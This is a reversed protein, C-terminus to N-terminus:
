ADSDEACPLDFHEVLRWPAGGDQQIRSVTGLNVTIGAQLVSAAALSNGASKPNRPHALTIHPLQRRLATSGLILSRLALFEEEGRICPLLIGHTSFSEPPGFSLSVPGTKWASLRERLDASQLDEIEDERCLTVHPAILSFQVPDLSKRAEDIKAAATGQVFLTLQVRSNLLSPRLPAPQAIGLTRALRVASAPVTLGSQSM